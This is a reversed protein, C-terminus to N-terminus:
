LRRRKDNYEGDFPDTEPDYYMINFNNPVFQFTIGLEREYVGNVRTMTIVMQAMINAKILMLLPVMLLCLEMSETCSMALEYLRIKSDDTDNAAKNTIANKASESM